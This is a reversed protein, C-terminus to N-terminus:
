LGLDTLSKADFARTAVDRCWAPDESQIREVMAAPLEGFRVRLLQLLFERAENARGRAEGELVWEEIINAAKAMQWEERFLQELVARSFYRTGIALAVAFLEARAAPNVQLGLIMAREERLTQETPNDECLVLLPALEPLEGGRIREAHEWLRLTQFHFETTLRGAEVRYCNPFNRYRGRTLYVVMLVVPLDLQATLAANKLFWGRMQRTDPQLQYEIHLAWRRPDGEPGVLFVQDARFEPLNVSVDEAHILRSNVQLGALRCFAAPVRRILAKM